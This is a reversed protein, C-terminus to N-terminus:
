EITLLLRNFENESTQEITIASQIKEAHESSLPLNHHVQIWTQGVVVQQNVTLELVFGVEHVVVDSMEFRGAGLERAVEALAMADIAKIYGSQPITITTVKLSQNLVSEPNVALQEAVHVPTDQAICMEIFKELAKGNDLVEEVQKKGAEFTSCSGTLELLKGAQMVVLNRTDRTGKGQLVQISEVVELANGIHSGIPQNMDTIQAVTKIGLGNATRVMSKALEEAETLTKMFAAKGCKVDLVLANLGEAAKKSVISATILPVSDVTDTVDRIAYLLGDAPAISKNQAAICCGTTEVIKQMRMPNLNCNFGPISELKDITGGTHGLGRGALMPVRMGCAALAPALMLSMKDGVGGTSHKDVVNPIGQWQLVAGSNMMGETLATTDEVSLGHQHVCKLWKEILQVSLHHQAVGRIFESLDSNSLPKKKIISDCMRQILAESMFEGM